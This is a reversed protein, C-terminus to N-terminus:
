QMDLYIKEFKKFLNTRDFNEHYYKKANEGMKLLENKDSNLLYEVNCALQKYDGAKCSIGAKAEEIIEAGEGNLMALIPKGFALYSQIKAPVTLRFIESKKLTVLMSDCHYFFNPMEEKPFNGLIHFNTNLGLRTIEEELWKKKRGDGAILWHIKKNNKLIYAAQIISEFDQSNGINGAFMIKFGVPILYSYKGTDAIESLYIDEAWNPYYVIKSSLINKNMISRSFSRSSIFIKDSHKYITIVLKNLIGLIAPNKINGASEVSDPWLDQVWFFVPIRFKKKLIIAPIGVTIPSPEYVFIVDYVGKVRFLATFSAFFAFSFYNILLRFGKSKGRSILPARIVKIGEYNQTRNGFFTYGPYFKGAPYNPKGTLITVEHAREQMGLAFDNIKFNEPWFYQSVILIRM